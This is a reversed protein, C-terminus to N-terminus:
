EKALYRDLFGIVRELYEDPRLKDAQRHGAEPVVWLEKPEGAAAFLREVAATSVYPDRGGHVLLLARPALKPVWHAADAASLDCGVRRGALWLTLWAVPLALWGPLGREKSGAAIAEMMTVPAGDSVVAVIAETQPATSIAVRGGMSFGFVGVREIGRRQLWDIAGLLDQQELCGMSVLHGDSRGHARYDFLLVNYGKHHFVPAYRLDSDMSGAHGPCFVVTGRPYNAPILWGRLTLGDRSAFAVDKYDLAFDAPSASADPVRRRTLVRAGYLALGGIIAGLLVLFGVVALFIYGM